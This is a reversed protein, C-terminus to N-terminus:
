PSREKQIPLRIEEFMHRQRQGERGEAGGERGVSRISHTLPSFDPCSRSFQKRFCWLPQLSLETPFFLQEQWLGSNGQWCDCTTHNLVVPLELGLLDLVRKESGWTGSVCVGMFM